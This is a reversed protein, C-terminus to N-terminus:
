RIRRALRRAADKVEAPPASTYCLRVWGGYDEGCSSGPALAVGDELCDALFGRVGRDDLARRVDLFLFTSGEPPPVGLESAVAEGVGRYSARAREVWAGGERLARLGAVQGATPASYFTHTSVKGVQAMAEPPGVLYGTRNGAMGYAKSFSFISLTREPAFRGLSVHDGRYVYDEYVEDSLLWLDERQAFAALAELQASPLVRGTPNSPTSVYLAATRDTLRERVAAVAAEPSDVRDYFPVEVPRARFTQVIGRILPWFPALILVEEGPSAIAGVAASLAGTAGAAVWVSAPDCALANGARVKEVIAEVLDPIGQPESYRHLGVFDAERLDQMRGGAFPEMWTDGVHLPCARLQAADLQRDTPSFVADPIAAIAPAFRPPRPV